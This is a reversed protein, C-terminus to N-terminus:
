PTNYKNTASITGSVATCGTAITAQLAIGGVRDATSSLTFGNLDLTVNPAYITVANGSSVELPGTLYYSGSNEIILGGNLVLSVGPSGVQLPTRPEIQTLTKITKARAGRPALQGQALALTPLALALLGPLLPLRM